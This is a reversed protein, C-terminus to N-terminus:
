EKKLRFLSCFPRLIDCRKLVDKPICKGYYADYYACWKCRPHSIRYKDVPNCDVSKYRSRIEEFIIDNAQEGNVPDVIHWNTGLLYDAIKNVTEQATM